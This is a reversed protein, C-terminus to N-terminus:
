NAFGHRKAFDARWEETTMNRRREREEEASLWEDERRRQDARYDAALKDLKREYFITTLRWTYVVSWAGIFVCWQTTTM